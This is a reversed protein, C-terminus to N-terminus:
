FANHYFLNHSGGSQEVRGDFDPRAEVLNVVQNVLYVQPYFAAFADEDRREGFSHGFLQATIQGVDIYITGINMRVDVRELADLYHLVQALSDEVHEDADVQQALPEVQRLHRKHGNQIGVFFAKQAGFASQSLRGSAGGAIQVSKDDHIGVGDGRGHLCGDIRGVPALGLLQGVVLFM